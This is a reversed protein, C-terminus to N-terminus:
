RSVNASAQVRSLLPEKSIPFVSGDTPVSLKYSADAAGIFTIQAQFQRSEPAPAASTLTALAMILSTITFSKM